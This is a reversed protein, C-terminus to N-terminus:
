NEQVNSRVDIKGTVVESILSQRYEILFSIKKEETQMLSEIRNIEKELFTIIGEIEVDPPMPIKIDGVTDTNLNLQTGFKGLGQYCQGLLFIYYLFESLQYSNIDPFYVFGDHICCQIKSIIPKGVSGAISLFLAGPEIKVSLSAGLESLRQKTEYLLHSSASVDSIRVWAYQGNEDFYKSDDIPRPSAGRKIQTLRKLKIIGWHEPIEGIWDIGSSKFSTKTNLGKTVVQNIIATCQAKLLEIKQKKKEILQDILAVKINLFTAIKEQEPMTPLPCFIDGIMVLNLGDRLENGALGRIKHYNSQLWYFLYENNIKNKDPVIAAMSQNCTAEIELIAVMGKTKGQGALAMLLSGEPVWKTSSDILAQESIYESAIKIRGQNVSGSNLWPITGNEWYEDILTSPTGGAYINSIWKLKVQSWHGPIMGLWEASSEKYSDYKKM